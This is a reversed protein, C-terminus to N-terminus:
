CFFPWRSAVQWHQQATIPTLWRRDDHNTVPGFHFDPHSEMGSIGLPTMNGGGRGVMCTGSTARRLTLAGKNQCSKIKIGTKKIFPHEFFDQFDLRDVPDRQLLGLLLDRCKESITISDPIKVLFVFLHLVINVWWYYCCTVLFAKALSAIVSHDFVISSVTSLVSIASFQRAWSCWHCRAHNQYFCQLRRLQSIQIWCGCSNEPM